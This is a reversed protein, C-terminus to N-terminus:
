LCACKPLGKEGEHRSKEEEKNVKEDEENQDAECAEMDVIFCCERQM